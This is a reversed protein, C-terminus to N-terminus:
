FLKAKKKGKKKEEKKKALDAEGGLTAEEELTMHLSTYYFNWYNEIDFRKITLRKLIEQVTLNETDITYTDGNRYQATISAREGFPLYKFEFEYGKESFPTQKRSTVIKHLESMTNANPSSTAM